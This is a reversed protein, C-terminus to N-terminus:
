QTVHAQSASQDLAADRTAGNALHSGAFAVTSGWRRRARELLEGAACQDGAALATAHAQEFARLTPRNALNLRALEYARAPDNGSGAYFEAGHDAFALLHKELLSEFGSHAALMQNSTEAHQGEADAVDALRWPVEPDGNELAPMLLAHAEAVQGQDLCIEALHVRAKVYCPLIDIARRYWQAAREAQPESVCEGWLLGLQFCVWAPAFPSVDPYTRLADLYTREAQDFHGLDALLAGLPVREEWRGSRALRNRRTALVRSLDEGTAQDISLLLREVADPDADRLKAQAISARAEAFRHTACAVQAAVLAARGSDSQARALESALMELRDFAALDGVFQATLQEQEVILEAIDPQELARWFRNWARQRASQLNIVAIEGDTMANQLQLDVARMM